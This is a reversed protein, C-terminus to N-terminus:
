DKKTATMDIIDQVMLAEADSLGLRKLDPCPKKGPKVRMKYKPTRLDRAVASHKTPTRKRNKTM